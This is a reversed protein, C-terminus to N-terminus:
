EVPDRIKLEMDPTVVARRALLNDNGREGSRGIDDILLKMTAIERVQSAIIQNALEGARPDSISAEPM